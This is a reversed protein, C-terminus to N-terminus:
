EMAPPQMIITGNVTQIATESVGLEVFCRYDPGRDRQQVSYVLLDLGSVIKVADVSPQKRTGYRFITGCTKNKRILGRTGNYTGCRPCKWIGRLTAKGLDSLFSPVKTRVSALEMRQSVEPRPREEM